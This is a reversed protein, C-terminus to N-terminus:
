LRVNERFRPKKKVSPVRINDSEAEKEFAHNEELQKKIHSAEKKCHSKQCGTGYQVYASAGLSM